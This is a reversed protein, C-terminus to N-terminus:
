LHGNTLERDERSKKIEQELYWMRGDDFHYHVVVSVYALAAIFGHQYYLALMLVGQYVFSLITLATEPRM